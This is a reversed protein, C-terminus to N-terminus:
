QYTSLEEASALPLGRAWEVAAEEAVTLRSIFDAAEERDSFVRWIWTHGAPATFYTYKEVGDGLDFGLDQDGNRGVCALAIGRYALALAKLPEEYGGIEEQSDPLHLVAIRSSDESGLLTYPVDHRDMADKTEQTTVFVSQTDAVKYTVAYAEEDFAAFFEALISEDEITFYYLRNMLHRTSM